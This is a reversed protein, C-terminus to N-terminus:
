FCMRHHQWSMTAKFYGTGCPTSEKKKPMYCAMGDEEEEEEEEVRRNICAAEEIAERIGDSINQVNRNAGGLRPRGIDLLVAGNELLQAYSWEIQPPGILFVMGGSRAMAMAATHENYEDGQGREDGLVVVLRHTYQSLDTTHLPNIGPVNTAWHVEDVFGDNDWDLLDDTFFMGIADFTNETGGGQNILNQAMQDRLTLVATRMDEIPVVQPDEVGPVCNHAPAFLYPDPMRDNGVIALMYCVDVAGQAHLINVTDRTAEFAAVLEDEAMSGSVDIVM